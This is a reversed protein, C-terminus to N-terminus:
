EAPEATAEEASIEGAKFRTIRSQAEKKSIRGERLMKGLANEVPTYTAWEETPVLKLNAEDNSGGLQLPITHDLKQAGSLGGRSAKVAESDERSMREVIVTGNDVRRIVQGTFIRNFATVPDLGLAKGYTVAMEIVGRDEAQAGDEVQPKGDSGTQAGGFQKNLAAYAKFEEDTLGDLIAQAEERRGEAVLGRIENYRGTFATKAARTEQAKETSRMSKYIAYNEDSLGDLMAQAEADKGEAALRRIEEYTPLFADQARARELRQREMADYFEARAVKEQTSFKVPVELAAALSQYLPRPEDGTQNVLEKVYPHSVSLGVYAAIKQAKAAGTDTDKYIPRGFYDENFVVESGVKIPMSFLQGFKKGATDLDGSVTAIAGSALNRGFALFSPMFEVYAIEGNAMPIKLAFERGRENDWMYNGNLRYNLLNYAAYTLAMGAVLRRNKYFAPNRWQTSVSRGTNVLTNIVGERFQPAFFVASLKDKTKQARGNEEFTGYFARVVDAAQRAADDASVGKALFRSEAEKFTQLYLQPMFSAFTKENFLKDFSAGALGRFDRDRWKKALSGYLDGYSGVRGGLDIGQEAMRRLVPLNQEFYRASRDPFNARIFPVVSKLDGATMQKILQGVAFFNFSSAPVGASLAIEQSKKSLTAVKRVADDLFGYADANEIQGNIVRAFTPEAFWRDGGYLLKVEEWGRPATEAPLIKGARNLSSMFERNAISKEMEQRYYGALQAPNEYRPTLGAERAAAYSPFVREKTFSPNLKLSKALEPTLPQIGDLYDRITAEDAGKRRMYDAVALRIEAPSQAYVQPLYNEVYKVDLGRENAEKFLADFTSRIQASYPTAEGAQYRDIVSMGEKEPVKFPAAAENALEKGVLISRRWDRFYGRTEQDLFKVPDLSRRLKQFLSEPRVSFRQAERVKEAFNRKFEAEDALRAQAADMAAQLSARKEATYAEKKAQTEVKSVLRTVAREDKAAVEAARRAAVADVRAAQFRRKLEVLEKQGARYREYAKRAVDVDDFGMEQIISDGRRAFRGGTGDTTLDPITGQFQGRGDVYRALLRAPDNRLADEKIDIALRLRELDDPLEGRLSPQRFRRDKPKVYSRDKALIRDYLREIQGRRRIWSRIKAVIREYIGRVGPAAKKTRVYNAFDDALWEEARMDATKYLKRDYVLERAATFGNERVHRLLAAKDEATVFRELYAHFSEHYLTSEAVKGNREVLGIMDAGFSRARFFGDISVDSDPGIGSLGSLDRGTVFRIEDEDFLGRLLAEADKPTLTHEADILRDIVRDVAREMANVMRSERFAVVPKDAADPKVAVEYWSVGKADTVRKAGYTKELYRGLDKEYFRYIPNSTDIKGSIDFTETVRNAYEAGNDVLRQSRDLDAKTIAKFKGDGLVEVVVWYKGGADSVIKGVELQDPSLLQSTSSATKTDFNYFRTANGLGEIKMATEGTPFQLKEVGDKAALKVEERVVRFHASPNNYQKLKQKPSTAAKAVEAERILELRRMADAETYTSKFERASQILARLEATKEPSLLGGRLVEADTTGGARLLEGEVGGKQYLDSQVEIVRRTGNLMDEVRAHAFYNETDGDFHKEGASTAFPSEYIRERYNRVEGRVPGPLAVYEYRPTGASGRSAANDFDTTTLPLLEEKVKAAYEAVPVQSGDPYSDLAARLADREAQKIEGSNTLDSIFQKSVSTRGKLKELTVLTLDKEGAYAPIPEGSVTDVRSSESGKARSKADKAVSDFFNEGAAQRAKPLPPVPRAAPDLRSHAEELLNVAATRVATADAGDGATERFRQGLGPLYADMVPAVNEVSPAEAFVADEVRRFTTAPDGGQSAFPNSDYRAIDASVDEGRMSRARWNAERLRPVAAGIIAGGGAVGVGIGGGAATGMGVMSAIELLSTTGSSAAQAAGFAGGGIAGTRFAQGAVQRFGQQVGKQAVNAAAGGSYATLVAQAVDGAIQPATKQLVALEDLVSAPIEGASVRDALGGRERVAQIEALDKALPQLGPNIFRTIQRAAFVGPATLARFAPRSEPGYPLLSSEYRRQDADPRVQQEYIGKPIGVLVEKLSSPTAAVFNRAFGARTDPAFRGQGSVLDSFFGKSGAPAPAAVAPTSTRAVPAAAPPMAPGGSEPVIEFRLAPAPAAAPAAAKARKPGLDDFFAM